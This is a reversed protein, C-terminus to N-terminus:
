ILPNNSKRITSFFDSHLTWQGRRLLRIASFKLSRFPVEGYPTAFQVGSKRDSSGPISPGYKNIENGSQVDPLLRALANKLKELLINAKRSKKYRAHDLQQLIDEADILELSADFLPETPDESTIQPDGKAFAMHRAASYGIVLPETFNPVVEESVGFGSLKGDKM